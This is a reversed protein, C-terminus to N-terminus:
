FMGIHQQLEHSGAVCRDDPVNGDLRCGIRIVRRPFLVEFTPEIKPRFLGHSMPLLQEAQPAFLVASARFTPLSDRLLRPPMAM